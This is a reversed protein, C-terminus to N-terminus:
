VTALGYPKVESLDTFHSSTLPACNTFDDQYVHLDFKMGGTGWRVGVMPHVPGTDAWSLSDYLVWNSSIYRWTEAVKADVDILMITEYPGAPSTYGYTRDYYGSDNVDTYNAIDGIGFFYYWNNGPSYVDSVLMNFGIAWKGSTMPAAGTLKSTRAM